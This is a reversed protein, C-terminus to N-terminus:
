RGSSGRDPAREDQRTAFWYRYASRKASVDATGPVPIEKGALAISLVNRTSPNDPLHRRQPMQGPREEAWSTMRSNWTTDAPPMASNPARPPMTLMTVCSRHSRRAPRAISEEAVLAEVCRFGSAVRSIQKFEAFMRTSTTLARQAHGSM